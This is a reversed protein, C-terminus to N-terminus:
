DCGFVQVERPGRALELRIGRSSTWTARDAGVAVIVGLDRPNDIGDPPNGSQVAFTAPGDAISWFSGDFDFASATFGCHTFVPFLYPQDLAAPASVAEIRLSGDPQAMTRAERVPSPLSTPTPSPGTGCTALGVTLLVTAVL